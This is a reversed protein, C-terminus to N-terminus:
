RSKEKGLVFVLGIDLSFQPTWVQQAGKSSPLLPVRLRPQVLGYLKKYMHYQSRFGVQAVMNFPMGSILSDKVQFNNSGNLTFGVLKINTKDNILLAPAIGYSYWLDFDRFNGYGEASKHWMLPLEIYRYHFDYHVELFGAQIVGAIIGVKPHIEYGIKLDNAVRRFTFDTYSLGISFAKFANRKTTYQIGFNVTQGPRDAKNLSDKFQLKTGKYSTPVTHKGLIRFGLSPSVTIDFFKEDRGQASLAYTCGFIAVCCFINLVRTRM